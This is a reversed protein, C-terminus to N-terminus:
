RIFYGSVRWTGDPDVMPVVTEVAAAKHEFVTDYQIVVYKGDPAGPLKETYERSKLKRSVLKGLPARVGGAMKEWNTQEVAGKFVKAAQTWSTPYDGGDVLKLWAEAAAQAADEPSDAALVGSMVALSGVLCAILVSRRLMMTVELQQVQV